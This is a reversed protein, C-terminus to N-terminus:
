DDVLSCFLNHVHKLSEGQLVQALFELVRRKRISERFLHVQDQAVVSRSDGAVGNRLFQFGNKWQVSRPQFKDLQGKMHGFTFTPILENRLQDEDISDLDLFAVLQQVVSSLDSLMDEYSLVIIERGDSCQFVNPALPKADALSMAFSLLHDIWSGFAIRGDIWQPIFDELTGDFGGEVQNSLHSYFSVCVDLPNRLLYIFKAGRRTTSSTASTHSPLMDWRLHTNFVRRGLHEHNEQIASSLSQTNTDWHADVEYFPAYDSVHKYYHNPHGVVLLDSTAEKSLNVKHRFLLTLVM